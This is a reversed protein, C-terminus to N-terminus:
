ARESVENAAVAYAQCQERVRALTSALESAAHPDGAIQVAAALGALQRLTGLLAGAEALASRRCRASLTIRHLAQEAATSCSGAKRRAVDVADRNRNPATVALAYGLNADIAQALKEPLARFPRKPWLLLCGLLALISGLVNDAARAVAVAEGGGPSFVATAMVFLPTLFVVFLTYNVSRLALTAAALPFVIAVQEWPQPLESALAAAALGGAMSGLIREIMRPGSLSADPHTVVVAAMTAWQVYPLALTHGILYTLLVVAARRLGHAAAEGSAIASGRSSQEASPGLGADVPPADALRELAATWADVVSAVLPDSAPRWARLRETTLRLRSRHGAPKLLLRRVEVLAADLDRLLERQVSRDSAQAHDCGHALAILGAFIQDGGDLARALEIGEVRGSRAAGVSELQGRAREITERVSRRHESQLRERSRPDGFGHALEATMERLEHFVLAVARRAPGRAPAPWVALSVLIALAGGGLFVLSRAPADILDIPQEAAVVAVVGALTGATPRGARLGIFTCAAVVVFLLIASPSTGMASLSSVAGALAAGCTTFGAMVRLRVRPAGGPDALCTWFAAFAAWALEPRRCCVAASVALTVAAAGRLGEGVSFQEPTVAFARTHLWRLVRGARGPRRPAQAVTGTFQM